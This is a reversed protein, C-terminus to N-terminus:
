KKAVGDGCGQDCNTTPWYAYHPHSSQKVVEEAPLSVPTPAHRHCEGQDKSQDFARIMARNMMGDLESVVWFVCNDCRIRKPEDMM